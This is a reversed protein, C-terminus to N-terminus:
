QTGIDDTGNYWKSDSSRFKLVQGNSPNSLDVDSLSSLTTGGLVQQLTRVIQPDLEAASLFSEYVKAVNVAAIKAAEAAENANKIAEELEQLKEPEM